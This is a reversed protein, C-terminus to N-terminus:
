QMKVELKANARTLKEEIQRQLMSQTGEDYEHLECFNAALTAPDDDKFVEIKERNAGGTDVEIFLLPKKIRVSAKESTNIDSLMPKTTERASKQNVLSQELLNEQIVTLDPLIEKM